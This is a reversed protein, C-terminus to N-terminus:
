KSSVKQITISKHVSGKLTVDMEGTTIEGHNLRRDDKSEYNAGKVPRARVRLLPNYKIYEGKQLDGFEKTHSNNFTYWWPNQAKDSSKGNIVKFVTPNGEGEKSNATPTVRFCEVDLHVHLDGTGIYVDSVDVHVSLKRPCRDYGIQYIKGSFTPYIPKGPSTGTLLQIAYKTVVGQNSASFKMNEAMANELDAQTKKSKLTSISLAAGGINFISENTSTVEESGKQSGDLTQGYGSIKESADFTYKSASYERLYSFTRGYTVSTVIALAKGNMARKLQEPTVSKGFLSSPNQRWTDKLNVTFYDQELTTAHIFSQKKSSTNAHVDVKIGAFSSDVKLDLMLSKESTHIRTRPAQMGPAEYSPDSLLKRMIRNSAERIEENNPNVNAQTTTSGALFDGYITVPTREVGSLPTPNGTPLDTDILLIAGPYINDYGSGRVFIPENNIESETKTLIYAAEQDPLSEFADPYITKDNYLDNNMLDAPRYPVSALLSNIDRIGTNSTQNTSAANSTTVFSPAYNSFNKGDHAYVRVLYTTNPYLGSIRYSTTDTMFASMKRNSIAYDPGPTWTVVYKLDRQATERDTARQWSVDLTSANIKSIVVTKNPITPATDPVSSANPMTTVTTRAYTNECGNTDRVYVIIEYTTNPQLGTITYSSNDFKREGIKRINNDWRYPAVCWTVTYMLQSQPTEKDTAKNWLISITTATRSVITLQKVAIQPQTNAM